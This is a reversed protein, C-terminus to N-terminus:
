TLLKTFAGSVKPSRFQGPAVLLGGRTLVPQRGNTVDHEDDVPNALVHVDRTDVFASVLLDLKQHVLTHQIEELFNPM